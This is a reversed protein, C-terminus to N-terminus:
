IYVINNGFGSNDREERFILEEPVDELFESPNRVETNGFVMRITAYSLFLKKKSRTIAM